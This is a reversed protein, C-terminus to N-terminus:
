QSRSKQDSVAKVKGKFDHAKALWLNAQDKNALHLDSYGVALGKAGISYSAVLRNNVDPFGIQHHISARTGDDRTEFEDPPIRTLVPDHLEPHEDVQGKRGFLVLTGDTHAQRVAAYLDLDHIDPGGFKWGFGDRAMKGFNAFSIREPKELSQALRDYKRYRGIYAVLLWALMPPFIFWAYSVEQIVEKVPPAGYTEALYKAAAGLVTIIPGWPLGFLPKSDDRFTKAFGSIQKRM